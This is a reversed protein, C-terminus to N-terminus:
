RNSRETALAEAIRDRVEIGFRVAEHDAKFAWWERDIAVFIPPNKFRNWAWEILKLTYANDALDVPVRGTGHCRTCAVGDSCYSGPTGAASLGGVLFPCGTWAWGEREPSVAEAILRNPDPPTPTM